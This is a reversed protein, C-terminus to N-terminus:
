TELGLLTQKGKLMLKLYDGLHILKALVWMQTNKPGSTIHFVIFHLATNVLIVIHYILCV